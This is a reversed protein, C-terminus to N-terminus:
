AGAMAALGEFDAPRIITLWYVGSGLGIWSMWAVWNVKQNSRGTIARVWIILGLVGPILLIIM